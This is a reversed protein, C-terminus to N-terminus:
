AGSKSFWKEQIAMASYVSIVAAIMGAGADLPFHQALYVRSYGTLLTLFFGPLWFYRARFVLCALLYISFATTNHGSPFSNSKHLEVGEVTHVLAQDTIVATPRAENAFVYHKGFQVVATSILISFLVIPFINRRFYLVLLGFPVWMIGDGLYTIYHFFFDATAGMNHNLLLFLEEKGGLYSLVILVLGTTLSLLVGRKFSETNLLEM